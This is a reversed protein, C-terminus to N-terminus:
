SLVCRVDDTMDECSLWRVNEAPREASREPIVERNLVRLEDLAEGDAPHRAAEAPRQQRVQAAIGRVARSPEACDPRQGQRRLEQARFQLPLNCGQRKKEGLLRGIGDHFEETELICRREGACWRDPPLPVVFSIVFVKSTLAHHMSSISRKCRENALWTKFKLDYIYVKRVVVRTKDQRAQGNQTIMIKDDHPIM